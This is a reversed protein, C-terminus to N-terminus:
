TRQLDVYLSDEHDINEGQVQVFEEHSLVLLAAEVM